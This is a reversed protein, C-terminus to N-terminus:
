CQLYFGAPHLAESFALKWFSASGKGSVIFRKPKNPSEPGFREGGGTATAPLYRWLRGGNPQTSASGRKENKWFSASGKQRALSSKVALVFRKTSILRRPPLAEPQRKLVFRKRRRLGKSLGNRRSCNAGIGFRKPMALGTDAENSM